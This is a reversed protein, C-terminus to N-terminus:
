SYFRELWEKLKVNKFGYWTRQLMFYNILHLHYKDVIYKEDSLILVNSKFNANTPLYELPEYLGKRIIDRYIIETWSSGLNYLSALHKFIDTHGYLLAIHHMSMTMRRLKETYIVCRKSGLFTFYYENRSHEDGYLSIVGIRSYYLNISDLVKNFTEKTESVIKSYLTFIKSEYLRHKTLLM